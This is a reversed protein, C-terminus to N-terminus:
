RKKLPLVDSGTAALPVKKEDKMEQLGKEIEMKLDLGHVVEGKTVDLINQLGEEIDMKTDLGNIVEAKAETNTVALPDMPEESETKVCGAIDTLDAKNGDEVASEMEEITEVKIGLPDVSLPDVTPKEEVDVIDTKSIIFPEVHEDAPCVGREVWISGRCCVFCFLNRSFSFDIL